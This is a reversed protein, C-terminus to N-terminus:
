QNLSHWVPVNPDLSIYKFNPLDLLNPPAGMMSPQVLHKSNFTYIPIIPVAQLLIAEAEQMLALRAETDVAEPALKRMIEDYRADSFGTNNTSRGSTFMNLFEAPSLSGAQWGARSLAYDKQRTTDLYVKWEMNTLSIAVNLEDKWMQQLAIAIQRSQQNTNYLYELGPWGQGGPYGAEALLARAQEPDYHMNDPPTYNPTAVPVLSSSAVETGNLVTAVLKERDIAMALARRVRLDDVPFRNINFQLYYTAQLPAQHYPSNSMKQYAPIKNIPVQFTFHLQGARFMKEEAAESDIPRFDIAKLTVKDADWYTESKTALLRRNLKWETLTFPGNGVFNEVRTWPTFRDTFKGHAEVTARHVPYAPYSALTALFYPDPNKLLIQLTQSNLARVGLAEPGALEGKSFAEAGMIPFLTYALPGGMDPHLSRRLSWVFDEATVPDGNSWRARPNLHFTLVKGDDSLEWRQAVGPEIELTFPNIAVLGEFLAQSINFDQIGYLVHPDIAQPEAGNGFYLVGNRNGAAVNSEGRSCALLAAMVSGAIVIGLCRSLSRCDIVM